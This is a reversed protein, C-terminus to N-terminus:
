GIKQIKKEPESTLSIPKLSYQSEMTERIEQFVRQGGGCNDKHHIIELALLTYQLFNPKSDKKMEAVVRKCAESTIDCDFHPNSSTFNEGCVICKDSIGEMNQPESFHTKM